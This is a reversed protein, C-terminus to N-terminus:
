VAGEDSGEGPFTATIAVLAASGELDFEADTDMVEAFLAVKPKLIGAPCGLSKQFEARIAVAFLQTVFV